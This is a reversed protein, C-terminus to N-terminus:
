GFSWFYYFCSKWLRAVEAGSGGVEAAARGGEAAREAVSLMANM